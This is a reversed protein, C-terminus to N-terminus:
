LLLAPDAALHVDIAARNRKSVRESAGARLQSCGQQIFHFATLYLKAHHGHANATAHSRCPNKFQDLLVPQVILTKM